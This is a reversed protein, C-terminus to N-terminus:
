KPLMHGSLDGKGLPLFKSSLFLWALLLYVMDNLCEAADTDVECIAPANNQPIMISYNKGPYFTSMDMIPYQQPVM